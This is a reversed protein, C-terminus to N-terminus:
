KSTKTNGKASQTGVGSYDIGEILTNDYLNSAGSEFIVLDYDGKELIDGFVGKYKLSWVMDIESCNNALFTGVPAMFSDRVLLVKPGKPNLNNFIYDEANVGDLYTSYRDSDYIKKKSDLNYITLLSDVTPGKAMRYDGPLGQPNYRRSFDTDFKPTILEFDDLGSYSVGTERGMSGLFYDKYTTVNYNNLNTYYGDPDINMKFRNNLEKVLVQYSYFASKTKWHHDTNYFVNSGQFKTMETSYDRYDIYSINEKDMSKTWKNLLKSSDLYPIGSRFTSKGNMYKDPPLLVLFKANNKESLDRLKKVRNFNQDFNNLLDKNETYFLEGSDSKVYTFGNDVDTGILNEVYGFTEIFTYKNSINSNITNELTKVSKSLSGFNWKCNKITDKIASREAIINMISFVFISVLFIITFIYKKLFHRQM